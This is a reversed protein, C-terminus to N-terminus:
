ESRLAIVPDKKAAQRAPIFGGILTLIMSLIILALGNQIPLQAVIDPNNTLHFIIQNGPILLLLTIGIGIM